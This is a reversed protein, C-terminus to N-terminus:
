HFIAAPEQSNAAHQVFLRKQHLKEKKKDNKKTSQPHYLPLASNHTKWSFGSAVRQDPASGCAGAVLVPTPTRKLVLPGKGTKFSAGATSM